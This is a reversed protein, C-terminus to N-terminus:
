SVTSEGCRVGKCRPVRDICRARALLKRASLGGCVLAESREMLILATM